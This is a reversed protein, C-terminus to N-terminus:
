RQGSLSVMSANCVQIVSLDRTETAEFMTARFERDFDGIEEPPLAARIARPTKDPISAYSM